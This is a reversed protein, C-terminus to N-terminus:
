SISGEVIGHKKIYEPKIKTKLLKKLAQFTAYILNIKTSTKGFTKSHIDKIGAIKMLKKTESEVNLSTGKPAPTLNIKVSGCKGQIKFPISHPEACGCAWSGCGRRIKILNLKARRTAKERAPVTEKAKGYGIGLHGDNDGVIALAAFNPKNGEKTKKQTQKWISKKGGGFKGKSQGVSILEVQLNPLLLDVIESELIKKGEDLIEDIDNIEKNKVKKGLETKPKWTEELKSTSQPQRELKVGKPSEQVIEKSGEIKKEM